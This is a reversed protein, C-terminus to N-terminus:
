REEALFDVLEAVPGSWRGGALTSARRDFRVTIDARPMFMVDLRWDIAQDRDLVIEYERVLFLLAARLLEMGLARGVCAHIGAGFPFYEYASPRADRWREPVFARPREFVAPDRHSLLPCLMVECNPPLEIGALTLTRTTLRVMFGNPPLLRLSELLVPSAWQEDARLARRWDRQQSLLLVTWALTIAVPESASVFLINAHGAAADEDLALGGLADTDFLAALPGGGARLHRRLGRDLERGVAFLDDGVQGGTAARRRRFFYRQLCVALEPDADPGLLVDAALTLALERLRELLPQPAASPWRAACKAMAAEAHARAVHITGLLKALARRHVSHEPERMSHLSRNLLALRPPLALRAAASAPLVFEDESALVRRVSEADFVAVAAPCDNARSFVAGDSRVVVLQGQAERGAVLATLPDACFAEFDAAASLRSALRTTVYRHYVAAPM